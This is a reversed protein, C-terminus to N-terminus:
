RRYLRRDGHGPRRQQGARALGRQHFQHHGGGMQLRVRRVRAAQVAHQQRQGHRRPRQWRWYHWCRWYRWYRWYRQCRHSPRSRQAQSAWNREPCDRVERGSRYIRRAQQDHVWRGPRPLRRSGDGVRRRSRGLLGGGTPGATPISGGHTTAATDISSALPGGLGAILALSLPAIALATRGRATAARVAPGALIMAAAAAAAVAIVVKLWPLWGPSRDLLVWAWAATVLLTGALIVRATWTHRLPWLATAGIGTLAAIAPVLAVTYYPHIIGSMYSFVVGTLVLWGGWLLAAARTRDRRPSRRSLWLLAALAILAAPLLWSIQSGM